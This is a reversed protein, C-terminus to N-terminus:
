KTCTLDPPPAGEVELYFPIETEDFVLIQPGSRAESWVNLSVEVGIIRGPTWCYEIGTAFDTGKAASCIPAQRGVELGTGRAIWYYHRGWMNDGYLRLVVSERNGRMSYVPGWYPTTLTVPTGIPQIESDSQDVKSVGNVRSRVPTWIEQGTQERYTWNGTLGGNAATLNSIGGWNGLVSYSHEIEVLGDGKIAVSDAYGSTAAITDSPPIWLDLRWEADPARTFEFLQYGDDGSVVGMGGGKTLSALAMPRDADAWTVIYNGELAINPDFQPDQFNPPTEAAHIAPVEEPKCGSFGLAGSIDSHAPVQGIFALRGSIDGQPGAIGLFGMKGAIGGDSENIGEFGLDGAIDADPQGIGRFRAAGVPPNPPAGTGQYGLIGDLGASAKPGSFGLQGAIMGSKATVGHFGLGGFAPPSGPNAVGIHQLAGAISSGEPVQVFQASAPAALLVAIAALRLSSKAANAVTGGAPKLKMPLM